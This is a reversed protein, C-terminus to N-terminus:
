KQRKFFFSAGFIDTIYDGLYHPLWTASSSLAYSESTKSKATLGMGKNFTLDVYCYDEYKEVFRKPIEGVLEWGEAGLKNIYQLCVAKLNSARFFYELDNKRQKTSTGSLVLEKKKDIIAVLKWSIEEPTEFSHFTETLGFSKKTEESHKIQASDFEVAFRVELYEWQM